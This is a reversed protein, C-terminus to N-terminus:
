YGGLEIAVAFSTAGGKRGVEVAARRRQVLRREKVQVPPPKREVEVM